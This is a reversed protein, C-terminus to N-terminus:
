PAPAPERSCWPGALLVVGISLVHCHQIFRDILAAVCAAGPLVTGWQKFPLNTTLIRM